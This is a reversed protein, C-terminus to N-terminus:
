KASKTPESVKNMVVKLCGVGGGNDFVDGILDDSDKSQWFKYQDLLVTPILGTLFRGPIFTQV